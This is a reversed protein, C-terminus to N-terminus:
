KAYGPFPQFLSQFIIFIAIIFFLNTLFINNIIYLFTVFDINIYYPRYFIMIHSNTFRLYNNSTQYLLDIIIVLRYFPWLISWHDIQSRCIKVGLIQNM